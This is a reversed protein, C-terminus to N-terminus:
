PYLRHVCMTRRHEVRGDSAVEVFSLTTEAGSQPVDMSTQTSQQVPRALRPPAASPPGPPPLTTATTDAALRVRWKGVQSNSQRQDQKEAKVRAKTMAACIWSFCEQARKMEASWKPFLSEKQDLMYAKVPTLADRM